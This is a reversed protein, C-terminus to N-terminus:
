ERIGTVTVADISPSEAAQPRGLMFRYQVYRGRLELTSLNIAHEFQPGPDIYVSNPDESPGRFESDRCDSTDCARVQFRAALMGRLYLNNIEANDLARNWLAFEDYSGAGSHIGENGGALTLTELALGTLHVSVDTVIPQPGGGALRGDVFIQTVQGAGMLQRRLALHHWQGDDISVDSCVRVLPEEPGRLFGVAHTPDSDGCFTSEGGCALFYLGNLPNEILSDLSMMTMGSCSESRYWLTWTFPGVGPEVAIPVDIRYADKNNSDNHLLGRGFIGRIDTTPAGVWVGDRLGTADEVPEGDFFPGADLHALLELAEISTDGTLYGQTAEDIPFQLPTGYPGRPSWRLELWRIESGADFIRSELTGEGFSGPIQVGNDLWDVNQLVEADAFEDDWKQDVFEIFEPISATEETTDLSTSPSTDDTTANGSNDASSATSTSLAETSSALGGSASSSDSASEEYRPNRRVCSLGTIALLWVIQARGSM